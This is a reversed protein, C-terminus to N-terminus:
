TEINIRRSPHPPHFAFLQRLHCFSVPTSDAQSAFGTKIGDLYMRSVAIQDTLKQRRIGIVPFIFVSSRQLIPHTEHRHHHVLHHLRGTLIQCYKHLHIHTIAKPASHFYFLRELYGPLEFRQPSMRQNQASSKDTFGRHVDHTPGHRDLGQCM